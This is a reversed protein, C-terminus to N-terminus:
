EERRDRVCAELVRLIFSSLMSRLYLLLLLLWVGAQSHKDSKRKACSPTCGMYISNDLRHILPNWSLLSFVWAFAGKRDTQTHIHKHPQTDRDWILGLVLEGQTSIALSRCLKKSGAPALIGAQLDSPFRTQACTSFVSETHGFYVRYIRFIWLLM